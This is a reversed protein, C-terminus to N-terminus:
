EGITKAYEVGDQYGKQYMEDTSLPNLALTSIPNNYSKIGDNYGKAYSIATAPVDVEIVKWNPQLQNNAFTSGKAQVLTILFDPLTNNFGLNINTGILLCEIYRLSVCKYFFTDFSSATFPIPPIKPAKELRWCSDFMGLYTETQTNLEPLIIGSADVLGVCGNFMNRYQCVLLKTSNFGEYFKLLDGKVKVDKPISFRIYDNRNQTGNRTSKIAM